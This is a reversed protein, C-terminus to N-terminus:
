HVTRKACPSQGATACPSQGATDRQTMFCLITSAFSRPSATHIVTSYVFLPLADSRGRKM